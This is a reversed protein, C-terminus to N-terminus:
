TNTRARLRLLMQRDLQDKERPSTKTKLLGDLDLVPITVDEIRMERVYPSLTEYTEGNAAFLIDVIVRDAVRINQVEDANAAAGFWEPDMEKASELYALGAIIRRGNAEDFPVLIDVDETARVIGNLRVAQGGVLIYQVGEAQLHRCLELLDNQTSM